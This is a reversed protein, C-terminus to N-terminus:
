SKLSLAMPYYRVGLYRQLVTVLCLMRFKGPSNEYEEPLRLFNPWWNATNLRVLNTWANLKELCEGVNLDEAGPLGRVVLLNLEAIDYTGLEADSLVCLRRVAESLGGEIPPIPV